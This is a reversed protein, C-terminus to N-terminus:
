LRCPKTLQLTRRLRLSDDSGKMGRGPCASRTASWPHQTQKKCNSPLGEVLLSTVVRKIVISAESRHDPDSSCYRWPISRSNLQQCQPTVWETGHVPLYFRRRCLGLASFQPSLPM